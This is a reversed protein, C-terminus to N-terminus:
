EKLLKKAESLFKKSLGRSHVEKWAMGSKIMDRRSRTEIDSEKMFVYLEDNTMVVIKKKFDRLNLKLLEEYM